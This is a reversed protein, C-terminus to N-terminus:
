SGTNNPTTVPKNKWMDRTLASQEAALGTNLGGSINQYGAQVKGAAAQIKDKLIDQQSRWEAAKNDAVLNLASYVKNMADMNSAHFDQGVKIKGNILQEWMGSLDNPDAGLKLATNSMGAFATDLQQNQFDRTQTDGGAQSLSLSFIKNIADPTVYAQRQKQLSNLQSNGSITEFIGLGTQLAALGGSVLDLAM